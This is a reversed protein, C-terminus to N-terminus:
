PDQPSDAPAALLAPSSHPPALVAQLAPFEERLAKLMPLFPALSQAREFAQIGEPIHGASLEVKSIWAHLMPSNPQRSLIKHFEALAGAYDKSQYLAVGQNFIFFPDRRLFQEGQAELQRALDARGSGRAAQAANTYLPQYEPHRALAEQLVSLAEPFRGERM